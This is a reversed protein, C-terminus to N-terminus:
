PRRPARARGARLYALPGRAVGTLEALILPGRGAWSAEPRAWLTVLHRAGMPLRSLVPVTKRPDALHKVGYAGLGMGYAHMQARLQDPEPRHLHWVMASPEYAIARGAWLIRHFADLDEGGRTASGAGLREDFGGLELMLRRDVTFNAGTGIRGTDFPFLGSEGGPRSMSYVHPELSSSWWTRGDFYRQAPTDLRAPLVLGTVCGVDPRTALGRAVGTLWGSDPLVDDDTFAVHDFAADTLGRNRARSLGPAEERLYRFRSDGAALRHFADLADETSPASDVVLVEFHDHDLERLRALAQALLRPRDHSCVVVSLPRRRSIARAAGCRAPSPIGEAGLSVPAELGDKRLHAQIPGSFLTWIRGALQDRDLGAPALPTEVFGLPLGHLRVLVRAHGYRRPSSPLPSSPRLPAGVEVEGMWRRGADSM